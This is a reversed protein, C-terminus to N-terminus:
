YFINIAPITNVKPTCFGIIATVYDAIILLVVLATGIM